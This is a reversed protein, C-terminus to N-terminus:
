VREHQVARKWQLYGVVAMAAYIAFLLTTPYLERYIYLGMSVLDVIIWILWHELIKKALMWTAIISASTTFADWYPLPSDTFNDLLLGTLLFVVAFILFLIYGTKSRLRKVPLGTQKDKQPAAWNIWGYISIFFYYGNLAMDAYFKSQFFVIVYMVASLIGVPWLLINQRISLYLYIVSFLVGLIEIYNESLWALM